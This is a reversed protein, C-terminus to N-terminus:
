KVACRAEAAFTLDARVVRRSYTDNIYLSEPGFGAGTPWTLPIGPAAALPSQAPRMRHPQGIRHVALQRRQM